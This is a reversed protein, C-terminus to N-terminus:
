GRCPCPVPPLIEQRHNMHEIREQRAPLCHPCSSFLGLDWTDAFVRGAGLGIGYALVDELSDLSPPHFLERSMLLEMAGNGARTPIVSCCGCGADFAFDLSRKAWEVGEEESLFPPRLLLFARTGIGHERYFSVASRFDRPLMKKNLLPLVEPHVTELGMAVELRPRLIEAFRLARQRGVRPHNEVILSEFGEALAAIAPYDSGPVAGPDFFNGSNYLKLHKAPPLRDLAYRIQALIAGDPVRDTTTNKWLDCMLCTFGCERNTLFVTIVDEVAGSATREKEILFHYPLFPDVPNREGRLSRIWADDPVLDRPRNM